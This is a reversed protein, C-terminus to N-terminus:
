AGRSLGRILNECCYIVVYLVFINPPDGRAHSERPGEQTLQERNDTTHTHRERERARSRTAGGGRAGLGRDPLSPRAWPPSHACLLPRLSSPPAPPAPSSSRLCLLLSLPVCVCPSGSCLLKNYMHQCSVVGLVLERSTFFYNLRDYACILFTAPFVRRATLSARTRDPAGASRLLARRPPARPGQTEAPTLASTQSEATGQPTVQSRSRPEGGCWFDGRGREICGGM